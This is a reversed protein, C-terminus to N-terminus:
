EAAELMDASQDYYMQAKVKDAPLRKENDFAWGKEYAEGLMHIAVPEGLEAGKQIFCFAEMMSAEDTRQEMICQALLAYNEVFEPEKTLALRLLREAEPLNQQTFTGNSLFLALCTIAGPVENDVAAKCYNLAAADDMRVSCGQVHMAVAPLFAWSAGREAAACCWKAYGDVNKELWGGPQSYDAVLLHMTDTDGLEASKELLRVIEGAFEAGKSKASIVGALGYYSVADDPNFKIAKRYMEEAKDLNKDVGKGMRYMDALYAFAEGEGAEAAREMYRFAESDDQAVVKGLRYAHALPLCASECGLQVAKEFLPVSESWHEDKEAALMFALSCYQWADAPNQRIAERMLEKARQLDKPVAAGDMYLLAMSALANPVNKEVALRAYQMAKGADQEVGQGVAYVHALANLVRDNGRNYSLLFYQAALQDNKEVGRGEYYCAGALMAGRASGAEAAKVAWEAGSQWGEQGQNLYHAALASAAEANGQEALRVNEEEAGPSLARGASTILTDASSTVKIDFAQAVGLLCLILFCVRKM